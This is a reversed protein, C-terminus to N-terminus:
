CISLLFKGPMEESFLLLRIFQNRKQTAYIDCPKVNRVQGKCGQMQGVKDLTWAKWLGKPYPPLDMSPPYAITPVWGM